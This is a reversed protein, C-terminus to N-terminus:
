EFMVDIESNTISTIDISITNNTIDVLTGATLKDQKSTELGDIKTNITTINGDINEIEGGIDDIDADIEDLKDGLGTIASIPHQDDADRNILTAHDKNTIFTLEGVDFELDQIETDLLIDISM